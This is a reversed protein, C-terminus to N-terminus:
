YLDIVRVDNLKGFDDIITDLEEEEESESLNLANALNIDEDLTLLTPASLSVQLCGVGVEPLM